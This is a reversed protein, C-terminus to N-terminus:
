TPEGALAVACHILALHTFGQPFNGLFGGSEPDIEESYLGVHNAHKLMRRFLREAQPRDGIRLLAEALWFTCISFAGEERGMYEPMHSLAVGPAEAVTIMGRPRLVEDRMERLFDMIGAENCCAGDLISFNLNGRDLREPWAQNKKIFTIADKGIFSYYPRANRM